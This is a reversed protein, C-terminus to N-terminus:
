TREIKIMIIQVLFFGYALESLILFNRRLKNVDGYFMFDPM